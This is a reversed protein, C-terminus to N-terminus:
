GARASAPWTPSSSRRTDGVAVYSAGEELVQLLPADHGTYLSHRYHSLARETPHRMLYIITAGPDFARIREPVGAYYPLKSYNTSSEGM